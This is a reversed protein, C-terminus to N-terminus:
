RAARVLRLLFPRAPLIKVWLYGLWHRWGRDLDITKSGRQVRVVRGLVQESHVIEDFSIVADGRLVWQLSQDQGTFGILRHAVLRNESLRCFVIDGIKLTNTTIPEVTLLDGARIFPWMSQGGAQFRLLHGQGLIETSLAAFDAHALTIKDM